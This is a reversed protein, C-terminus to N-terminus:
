KYHIRKLKRRRFVNQSNNFEKKDITKNYFLKSKGVGFKSFLAQENISASDRDKFVHIIKKTFNGIGFEKIHTKLDESSGMYDDESPDCNCSRVGIYFKRVDKPNKNTIFYTYHYKYKNTLEYNTLAM